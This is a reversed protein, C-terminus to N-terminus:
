ERDQEGPRRGYIREKRREVDGTRGVEQEGQARCINIGRRQTDHNGKGHTAQQTIGQEVQQWLDEQALILGVTGLEHKNFWVPIQYQSQGDQNTEHGKDGHILTQPNSGTACAMLVRMTMGMLVLGLRNCGTSINAITLGLRPLLSLSLLIDL